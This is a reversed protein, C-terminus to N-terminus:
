HPQDPKVFFQDVSKGRILYPGSVPVPANWEPHQMWTLVYGWKPHYAMSSNPTGIDNYTASVDWGGEKERLLQTRNRLNEYKCCALFTRGNAHIASVGVAGPGSIVRHVEEPQSWKVGDASRCRWVINGAGLNTVGGTPSFGTGALLEYTGDDRQLLFISDVYEPFTLTALSDWQYGERSRLLNVNKETADAWIFQGRDDQIVHFRGVTRDVIMAPRSWHVGDRSWCLYPRMQHQGERDSLFALMYRGSEDRLCMPDQEVWGTSVPMPLKRPASFKVGDASSSWWLDGHRSWFVRIGDNELLLGPGDQVAQLFPSQEPYDRGILVGESWSSWPTNGDWPLSVEVKTTKGDEVTVDVERSGHHGEMFSRFELKYRGPPILGMVGDGKQWPTGGVRVHYKPTSPCRVEIAGHRQIKQFEPVLRLGRFMIKPDRAPDKASFAVVLFFSRSPPMNNLVFGNKRADEVSTAFDGVDMDSNKGLRCIMEGEEAEVIPHVELRRFVYGEPAIVYGFWGGADYHAAGTRDRSAKVMLPGAFMMVEETRDPAFQVLTVMWSGDFGRMFSTRLAPPMPLEGTRASQAIASQIAIRYPWGAQFSYGRMKHIEGLAQSALETAEKFREMQQLVQASRTNLWCRNSVPMGVDLENYVTAEPFRRAFDAYLALLTERPTDLKEWTHLYEKIADGVRPHTSGMYVFREYARRAHEYRDMFYYMRAVWYQAELYEPDSRAAERFKLWAEAYNGEDFLHLGEYLARTAPVSRSWVPLGKVIQEAPVGSFWGLLEASIRKQLELVDKTEGSLEKQFVVKRSDVEVIQATVTLTQGAVGYVGTVLNDIKLEKRIQELLRPDKAAMEAQWRLKRAVIQMEDRAVVTIKRSRTFDTTIQDALGKEVWVWDPTASKMQFNFVAVNPLAALVPGAIVLITTAMLVFRQRM